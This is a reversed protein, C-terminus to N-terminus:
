SVKVKRPVEPMHDLNDFGEARFKLTSPTDHAHGSAM